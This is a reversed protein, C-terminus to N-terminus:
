AFCIDRAKCKIARSCDPTSCVNREPLPGGAAGIRLSSVAEKVRDICEEDYELDHEHIPNHKYPSFNKNFYIIKAKRLGTLWMYVQTQIVHGFDPCDKYKGFNNENSSKFELLTLDDNTYNNPDCFVMQGDPSGGIKFEENGLWEEIYIFAHPMVDDIPRGLVRPRDGAVAGCRICSEPRPVMKSDRSGYIEGCYTCRWSGVIYGTRAIARNQFLWHIANGFEFNLGADGDVKDERIINNKSCIAEERPCMNGISSVRIWEDEMLPHKIRNEALADRILDTVRNTEAQQRSVLTVLAM